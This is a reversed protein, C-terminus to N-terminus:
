IFHGMNALLTKRAQNFLNIAIKPKSQFLCLASPGSPAM